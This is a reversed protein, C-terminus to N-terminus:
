LSGRCPTETRGATPSVTEFAILTALARHRKERLSWPLLRLGSARRLGRGIQSFDETFKREDPSMAANLRELTLTAQCALMRSARRTRALANAPESILRHMMMRYTRTRAGVANNGHQRYLVLQADVPEIHGLYAAVHAAWWDHMSFDAPIPLMQERLAANGLMACGTVFNRLLLSKRVHSYEPGTRAQRYTFGQQKWFSDSITGLDETVVRLDCHALVPVARGAATEARTAANLLSAIKEPLWVDDQDAFVFYPTDSAALLRAFSGRPGVGRDEDHIIKISQDIREAWDRVIALSADTSGDDRVILRWDPHSQEALSYLFEPLFRAGNYTALLVDVTPM